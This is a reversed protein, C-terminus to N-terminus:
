NPMLQRRSSYQINKRPATQWSRMCCCRCRRQRWTKWNRRPFQIRVADWLWLWSYSKVIEAGFAWCFVRRPVFKLLKQHCNKTRTLELWIQGQGSSWNGNSTRWFWCSCPPSFSCSLAFPMATYRPSAGGAVAAAIPITCTEHGIFDHFVLPDMPILLIQELLTRVALRRTLKSLRQRKSTARIQNWILPQNMMSVLFILFAEVRTSGCWALRESDLLLCALNMCTPLLHVLSSASWFLQRVTTNSICVRVCM